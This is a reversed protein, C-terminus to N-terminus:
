LVFHNHYGIDAFGDLPDKALAMNFSGALIGKGLTAILDDCLRRYVPQLCARTAPHRWIRSARVPKGRARFCYGLSQDITMWGEPLLAEVVVHGYRKRLNAAFVLRSPIGAVQTLACLVRAQENCWGYGSEILEEETMARDPPLARGTELKFFGAWKVETAVFATLRGVKDAPGRAGGTLRRALKELAPRSGRAYPLRAGTYRDYAFRETVDDLAIYNLSQELDVGRVGPMFRKDISRM